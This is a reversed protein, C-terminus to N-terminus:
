GPPEIRLIFPISTPTLLPGPPELSRGSGGIEKERLDVENLCVFSPSLARLSAAVRAVTSGGDDDTFRRVNYTVFRLQGAAAGAPQAAAAAAAMTTLRRIKPLPHLVLSRGFGM